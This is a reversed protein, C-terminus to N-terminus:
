ETVVEIGAREFLDMIVDTYTANGRKLSTLTNYAELSIQIHKRTLEDSM